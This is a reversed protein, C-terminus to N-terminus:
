KNEEKRIKKKLHYLGNNNQTTDIKLILSKEKEEKQKFPNFIDESPYNISKDKKDKFANALAIGYALNNYAGQIHAITHNREVYAKRYAFLLDPDEDWFQQPTMGCELALPLEEVFYYTEM